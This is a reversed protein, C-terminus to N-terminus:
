RSTRAAKIWAPDFADAIVKSFAENGRATPHGDNKIFLDEPWRTGPTVVLGPVASLASTFRPDEFGYTFTVIPHAGALRTAAFRAMEDQFFAVGEPTVSRPLNRDGWLTIATSYGLLFSALSFGGVREHAAREEQGDWASLDNPLTLCLVIVSAGLRQEAVRIMALHSLLNNGPVGLNVVEIPAGPFRERLRADLQHSITGDQEVGSGFVFSDGIIAVRVAGEAPREPFDAGRLGWRNVEYRVRPRAPYDEVFSTSPMLTTLGFFVGPTVSRLEKSYGVAFFALAVAAALLRQYLVRRKRHFFLLSAAVIVVGLLLLVGPKVLDGSPAGRRDLLVVEGAKRAVLQIGLAIGLGFAPAELAHTVASIRGLVIARRGSIPKLTKTM